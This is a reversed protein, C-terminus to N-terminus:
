PQNHGKEKKKEEVKMKGNREIKRKRKKQKRQAIGKGGPQRKKKRWGRKEGRGPRKGAVNNPV